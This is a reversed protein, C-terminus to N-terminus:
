VEITVADDVMEAIEDIEEETLGMFDRITESPGAGAVSHYYAKEAAELRSFGITVGGVRLYVRRCFPIKKVM